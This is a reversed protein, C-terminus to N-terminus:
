AAFGLFLAGAHLALWAGLLARGAPGARAALWGGLRTAGEAFCLALVPLLMLLYAAKMQTFFPLEATLSAFALFVAWAASLLFGLAARLRADPAAFAQRALGAAGFLLCATAPLALWYGAAMYGYHWFGHRQTPDGRGAVFGDGWLTAYVGDWFSRFGAFWPHVLAEGFRTYFAPTHFGPQQWWVQTEGPLSWNGVLPTGYALWARAYFWGAVLLLSGAFLVLRQGTHRAGLGEVGLGKWALFALAVPVTVLVTFKALAALAFLLAAAALRGPALGPALLVGACAALAGGALLAHLAENSFYSATYLNVPLTAAFLAAAAARAPSAPFLRRALGFCLWVLGLGAAFPLAKQAAAGGGAASVGAALLYFLPPQYTSWGEDARPLRGEALLIEVYELHHRADFGIELPIRAAKASYLALWAASAALPLVLASRASLRLRASAWGAGAGLLALLALPLAQRALAERPTELALALPSPRTDDALVAPVPASAAREVSWAPGSALEAGPPFPRVSLLAPGRANRVEVRLEHAGAPLDASLEVVAEAAGRGRPEARAVEAGDLEVRLAGLARVRLREPLGAGPSEFRRVFSTLPAEREGWQRLHASVLEPAAIWPAAESQVVFPLADTAACRALLLLPPLVWLAALAGREFLRRGEAV